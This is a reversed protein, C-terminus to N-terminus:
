VHDIQIRSCLLLIVYKTQKIYTHLKEATLLTALVRKKIYEIEYVEQQIIYKLFSFSDTLHYEIMRRFISSDTNRM